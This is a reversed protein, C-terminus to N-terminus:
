EPTYRAAAAKAAEKAMQERIKRARAEADRTQRVVRVREASDLTTLRDAAQAETEGKPRLGLEKLCVRVLEERRDPDKVVDDANVVKALDDLGDRLLKWMAPALQRRSIFWQDHLLWSTVALLRLRTVAFGSRDLAMPVQTAPLEFGMARLHDCVVAMVDIQGEGRVRPPLLFEGPCEALRHTLSALDPGEDNM